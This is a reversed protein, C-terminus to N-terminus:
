IADLADGLADGYADMIEGSEDAVTAWLFYGPKTPPQFQPFRSSGFEAGWIVNGITQNKGSGGMKIVPVRDRTAKISPAVLVAVGGVSRARSGAKTAVNSAIGVSADRLKRTVDAPLRRLAANLGDVTNYVTVRAM